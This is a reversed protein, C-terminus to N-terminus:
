ENLKDQKIENNPRSVTTFLHVNSYPLFESLVGSSTSFCRIKMMEITKKLCKLNIQVIPVVM